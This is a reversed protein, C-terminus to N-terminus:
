DEEDDTESESEEKTDIEAIEDVEEILLYDKIKGNKLLKNANEYAKDESEAYRYSWRYCWSDDCWELIVFISKGM